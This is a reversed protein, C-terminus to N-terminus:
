ILLTSHLSIIQRGSKPPPSIHKSFDDSIIPKESYFSTFRADTFDAVLPLLIQQNASFLTYNKFAFFYYQAEFTCCADESSPLEQTSSCCDSKSEKQLPKCCSMEELVEPMNCTREVFTFGTSSLLVQFILWISLIHKNVKQM